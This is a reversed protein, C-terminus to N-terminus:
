QAAELDARLKKAGGIYAHAPVHGAPAYFHLMVRIVRPMSGAAREIAEIVQPHPPFPSENSALQAIGGAAIAEPAQGTPVGAQYGPMRALREAFTVTM